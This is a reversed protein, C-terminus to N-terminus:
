YYLYAGSGENEFVRCHTTKNHKIKATSKNAAGAQRFSM